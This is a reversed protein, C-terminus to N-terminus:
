FVFGLRLGGANMGFLNISSSKVMITETITNGVKKNITGTATRTITFISMGVEAGIYVGDTIYYDGGLMLGSTFGTTLGSKENYSNNPNVSAVGPNPIAANTVSISSGGGILIGLQAGVYPSLKKTGNFHFEYGPFLSMNVGSKETIEATFSGNSVGSKDISSALGFRIRFASKDSNFYRLRLEAPTYWTSQSLGYSIGATGTQLNLNFEATKNGKIPKQAMGFQTLFSLTLLTFLNKM